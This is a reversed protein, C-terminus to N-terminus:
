EREKKKPRPSAVAAIRALNPDPIEDGWKRTVKRRRCKTEALSGEASSIDMVRWTDRNGEDDVGEEVRLFGEIDPINAIKKRLQGALQPVIPEKERDSQCVWWTVLGRTITLSHLYDLDAKMYDLLAGFHDYDRRRAKITSRNLPLMEEEMLEQVKTLSDVGFGRFLRQKDWKITDVGLRYDSYTEATIIVVTTRDLMEPDQDADEWEEWPLISVEMDLEALDEEDFEDDGFEADVILAPKPLTYLLTSKGAGPRGHLLGSTGRRRKRAM